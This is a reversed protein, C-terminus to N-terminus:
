HHQETVCFTFTHSLISVNIMSIGKTQQGDTPGAQVGYGAFCVVAGHMLIGLRQKISCLQIENMFLFM